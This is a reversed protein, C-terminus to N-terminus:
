PMVVLGSGASGGPTRFRWVVATGSPLPLHEKGGAGITHMALKRGQLDFLELSGVSGGNIVVLGQADCTVSVMPKGMEEIGATTVNVEFASTDTLGCDDMAVYM